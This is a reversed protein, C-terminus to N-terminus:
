TTTKDLEKQALDAQAKALRYKEELIKIEISHTEKARHERAKFEKKLIQVRLKKENSSLEEEGEPQDNDIFLINLERAVAPPPSPPPSPHPALPPALPVTPETITFSRNLVQSDSDITSPIEVLLASTIESIDPDVEADPCPGGGGTAM